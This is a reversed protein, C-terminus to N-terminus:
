SLAPIIECERMRMAAMSVKNGLTTMYYKFTKAIKKLLGHERLRRIARSIRSGTWDPLIRRLMRATVGSILHEPRLVALVLDLDDELFFNIGRHSRGADDKVKNSVKLLEKRGISDDKLCSIFSLYRKNSAGLLERVIGLSHITKKVPAVKMSFGGDRHEVKRRHKFFSVDSTTTEIRLVLSFKDYLKISTHGLSHKVRTGEILTDYRSGGEGEYNPNLGNHGLFTAINDIKVENIARTKISDYISALDEARKFIIDTSYEIQAISWHWGAPFLADVPCAIRAYQELRSQLAVPDLHDALEQAKAFDAIDVFANDNKKFKVGSMQLHSALWDHGNFCIQLRFPAWTPVRVHLLGLIDDIFYFYYHLCRGSSSTMFTKGTKKDHWPKFCNCNEMASFVHVLGSKVGLTKVIEQIKKEKKFDNFRRIFEIPVGGEGAVKKANVHLMDRIPNVFEGHDFLRMGRRTLQSAMANSHCIDPLTGYILIRDFCSLTGVIQDQYRETILCPTNM